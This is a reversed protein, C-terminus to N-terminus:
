NLPNGDPDLLQIKGLNLNELANKNSKYDGVVIVSMKESILYKESVARVDKVTVDKIKSVYLNFYNEPLDYMILNAIQGAIQAPTEFLRPFSLLISNKAFKLEDESVDSERMKRLENLLESICSDTVSSKFGGGANFTGKQKRYTFGSRAGYTYGKQERLNWNIRSNFNGGLIMNMVELAFYDPNNREVGICGVRIQSQPAEPKDVLFIGPKFNMEVPPIDPINQNGNKWGSLHKELQKKLENAKIDGVVILVANKPIFYKKYLERLDNVEISNLSAETGDVPNGYPHNESYVIKSFVKNAIVDARDKQQLLSTLVENRVRNFESDPFVSNQLIDATLELSKELHKKLALISIFSGDHSTSASFRTGLYEFEDAIDFITRTKTGADLLRMMLNFAGSKDRPEHSCGAGFVFQMQVIPLQHYEVLKVQLGNSLSLSQIKPFKFDPTKGAKPKQTRDIQSFLNGMILVVMLFYKLFKM